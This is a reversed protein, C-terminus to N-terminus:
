RMGDLKDKLNNLELDNIHEAEIMKDKLDENENKLLSLTDEYNNKIKQNKAL